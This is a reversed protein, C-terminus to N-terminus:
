QAAWTSGRLSHSGRWRVFPTLLCPRGIRNCSVASDGDAAGAAFMRPRLRSEILPLPATTGAAAVDRLREGSRRRRQRRKSLVESAREGPRAGRGQVVSLSESAAIVNRAREAVGLAATSRSGHACLVGVLIAAM